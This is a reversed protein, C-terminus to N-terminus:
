PPKSMPATYSAPAATSGNRHTEENEQVTKTSEFEFNERRDIEEREASNASATTTRADSLSDRSRQGRALLTRDFDPAAQQSIHAM